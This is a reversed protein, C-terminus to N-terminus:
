PQPQVYLHLCICVKPKRRGFGVLISELEHSVFEAEPSIVNEVSTPLTSYSLYLDLVKKTFHSSLRSKDGSKDDEADFVLINQIIEKTDEVEHRKHGVACITPQLILSWWEELRATGTLAPRILRLASLFPGHKERSGAVYKMYLSLLEEHLRQSDNEEIDTYRDLFVEITQHLEDPLPYATTSASFTTTLARVVDRM